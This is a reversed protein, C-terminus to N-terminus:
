FFDCVWACKEIEARAEHIVKGMELTMLHALDEKEKRLMLAAQKMKKARLNFNTSKWDLWAEGTSTVIGIAEENSHRTYSQILLGTAPNISKM